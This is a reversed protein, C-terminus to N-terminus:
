LFAEDTLENLEDIFLTREELRIVTKSGDLTPNASFTEFAKVASAKSTFRIISKCHSQWVSWQFKISYREWASDLKFSRVPSVKLKNGLYECDHFCEYFAYYDRQSNFFIVASKTQQGPEPLRM